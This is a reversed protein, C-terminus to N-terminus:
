PVPPPADHALIREIARAYKETRQHDIESPSALRSLDSNERLDALKVQRAIPDAIAREIFAEYSEGPIKSLAAIARLVDEGFGEERLAQLSVDSDEVVDHLVAAIRAQVSDVRLMVKIPHLIYPTGAKDLQGEHAAAAIAIARELTSM